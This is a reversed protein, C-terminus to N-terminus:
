RRRRFADVALGPIAAVARPLRRRSEALARELALEAEEGHLGEGHGVLLHRPELGGLTARPPILRLLVHVGAGGAPVYFANTGIAEAVVLTEAAPWWLAVEQWRRSRRVELVDFPSGPV